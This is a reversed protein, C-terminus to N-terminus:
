NPLLMPYTTRNGTDSIGRIDSASKSFHFIVEPNGNAELSEPDSIACVSLSVGQELCASTYETPEQNIEKIKNWDVHKRGAPQTGNLIM